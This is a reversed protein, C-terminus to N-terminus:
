NEASQTNVEIFHRIRFAAGSEEAIRRCREIEEEGIVDVVTLVTQIGQAVCSKAFNLMHVFAEEGYVSQCDRHYDAANSANLSVSVTDVFGRLLPGIDTGAYVSGHGNTNLRVHVGKAKLYAAVRLLVDLRMTPEGLGCFVAKKIASAKELEQIIEFAEPKRKLRLDYGGVGDHGNRICFTCNNTCQNTLNIYLADNYRYVYTDMRTRENIGLVASGKKYAFLVM